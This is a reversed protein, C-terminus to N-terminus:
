DAEGGTLADVFRLRGEVWPQELGRREAERQIATAHARWLTRLRRTDCRPDWLPKDNVVGSGAAWPGSALLILDELPLPEAAALRKL